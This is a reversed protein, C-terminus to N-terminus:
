GLPDTTRKNQVDIQFPKTIGTMGAPATDTGLLRFKLTSPIKGPGSVAAEPDVLKMNPFSIKREYYYTSEILAGKFYIEAKKRTDAVWDEFFAQNADNYRPFKLTLIPEPFGEGVPEYIYNSGAKHDGEMPRNFALEISNPYVKDGDALAAGSEDNIKITTNANMIIRNGKDPYTLNALTTTTNTTSDLKLQDPIANLALKAPANMEVSFTFGHLKVSCFEWVKDSKKKIAITAFLGALDDAQVYSNIYAATAEQQTPTGATGMILALAVDLGEYRDYLEINGAVDIKGQDTRQIFALGASDDLLEEIKQSLSESLILIGDDAGCAIATGWESAKKLGVLIERGTIPNGM